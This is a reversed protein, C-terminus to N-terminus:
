PVREPAEGPAPMGTIKRFAALVNPCGTEALVDSVTGAAEVKGKDLVVLDDDPWVEDVLHTAWLLVTGDRKCIEHLHAVLAERAAVDLGVTPEDLVLFSPRHLLARAIELRRRHGGNLTRAKEGERGALGMRELCAVIRERAEAGSLGRLAAFYLMNQRVTLDLDLSPQQFVIGMQALAARLNKATDIGLINISGGQPALLGCLLSVLTTKGAGNAGLLATFRGPNLIISVNDLAAKGGYGYSLGSITITGTHRM